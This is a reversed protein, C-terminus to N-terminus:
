RNLYLVWYKFPLVPLGIYFIPFVFRKSVYRKIFLFYKQGRILRKPFCDGKLFNEIDATIDELAPIKISSLYISGNVFREWWTLVIM